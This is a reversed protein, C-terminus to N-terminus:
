RSAAPAPPLPHLTISAALQELRAKAIKGLPHEPFEKALAAYSAQAKQLDDLKVQYISGLSLLVLPRNVGSPIAALEELAATAKDWQSLQQYALALYGKLITAMDPNPANPALNTYRWVAREFAKAAQEPQQRKVYGAGIYLPAELGMKTWSYFDAIDNYVRVAEDWNDEAEYSKAIAVRAVLCLEKHQNYNQLTQAYAERAQSYQQRLAYLSGIATHARAAWVTGRAKQTVVEFAQIAKAVQEPTAAKPDKAIPAHIENAKM